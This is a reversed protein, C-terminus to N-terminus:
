ETTYKDYVGHVLQVEKNYNNEKERKHNVILRYFDNIRSGNPLM